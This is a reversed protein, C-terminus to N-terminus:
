DPKRHTGLLTPSPSPASSSLRVMFYDVGACLPVTAASGADSTGVPITKDLNLGALTAKAKQVYQLITTRAAVGNADTPTGTPGIAGLLYENGITLGGIHETGYKSIAATLVDM